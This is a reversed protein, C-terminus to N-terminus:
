SLLRIRRFGFDEGFQFLRRDSSVFSIKFFVQCNVSRVRGFHTFGTRRAADFGDFFRHFVTEPFGASRLLIQAVFRDDHSHESFRDREDGAFVNKRARASGVARAPERGNPLLRFVAPSHNVIVRLNSHWFNSKIRFHACYTSPM